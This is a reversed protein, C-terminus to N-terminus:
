KSVDLRQQARAIAETLAKPRKVSCIALLESVAESIHTNRLEILKAHEARARLQDAVDGGVYSPVRADPLIRDAIMRATDREFRELELLAAKLEILDHPQRGLMLRDIREPWLDYRQLLEVRFSRELNPLHKRWSTQQETKQLTRIAAEITEVRAALVTREADIESIRAKANTDGLLSPLALDARENSLTQARKHLDNAEARLAPISTNATPKSLGHM